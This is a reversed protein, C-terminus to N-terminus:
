QYEILAGIDNSYQTGGKWVGSTQGIDSAVQGQISLQVYFVHTAKTQTNIAQKVITPLQSIVPKLQTCQWCSHRSTIQVHLGANVLLNVQHHSTIGFHAEPIGALM